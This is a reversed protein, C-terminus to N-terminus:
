GPHATARQVGDLQHVAAPIVATLVQPELLPRVVDDRVSSVLRVDDRRHRGYPIEKAFEVIGFTFSNCASPVFIALPAAIIVSVVTLSRTRPAVHCPCKLLGTASNSWALMLFTPMGRQLLASKVSARATCFSSSASTVPSSVSTDSSCPENAADVPDSSM